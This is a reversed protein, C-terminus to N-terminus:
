NGPLNNPTDHSLPTIMTLVIALALGRTLGKQLSNTALSSFLAFACLASLLDNVTIINGRILIELAFLYFVFKLIRFRPMRDFPPRTLLYFFVLWGITDRIITSFSLEPQQMLPAVAAFISKESFLPIFPFLRWAVWLLALVLPITIQSWDM